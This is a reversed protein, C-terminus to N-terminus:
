LDPPVDLLVVAIPVRGHPLLSRYAEQVAAQATREKVTRGSVYILLDRANSRALDPAGVFGRATVGNSKGEFAYSRRAAEVGLVAGIRELLSAEPAILLEIAGDEIVKFGVSPSALATKAVANVAHRVETASTKLFKLRAPTNYFLDRVTIRTGAPCGVESVRRVIGGEVEIRTGVTADAQRTELTFRSVSAISPLAEGRFGFTGISHLDALARIKSTAFRKISTQADESSMGVGDDTVSLDRATESIEVVIRTAGADLANEVLEKVVSAPREVVEGAAIQNSLADPLVRVSGATAGARSPDSM